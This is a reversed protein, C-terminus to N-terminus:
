KSLRWPIARRSKGKTGAGGTHDGGFRDAPKESRARHAMRSQFRSQRNRRCRRCTGLVNKPSWTRGVNRKWRASHRRQAAHNGALRAACFVSKRRPQEWVTEASRARLHRDKRQRDHRAFKRERVEGRIRRRTQRLCDPRLAFKRRASKCWQNRGRMWRRCIIGACGVNAHRCERARRGHHLPDDARGGNARQYYWYRWASQISSVHEATQTQHARRRQRDETQDMLHRSLRRRASDGARGQDRACHLALRSRADIIGAAAACEQRRSHLAM